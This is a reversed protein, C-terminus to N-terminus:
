QKWDNRWQLLAATLADVILTQYSVSSIAQTQTVHGGVLPAVEVAVEPCALSDMPEVSARGLTVPVAAHALAADVESELKMSQTVYAAQATRWSLYGTNAMPSLSSTYLHVGSGTATAHIVLCAAAQAHNTVEARNVPSLNVDAQRTTVVDIGRAHLASRLRGVLGLTVDKELVHDDIRAGTDNGGHSPDLVVVFRPQVNPQQPIPVSPLPTQQPLPSADTRGPAGTLFGITLAVAANIWRM